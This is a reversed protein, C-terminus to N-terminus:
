RTPARLQAEAVPDRPAGGRSAPLAYSPPDSDPLLANPPLPQTPKRPKRASVNPAGAAGGSKLSVAPANAALNSSLAAPVTTVVLADGDGFKVVTATPVEAQALPLVPMAALAVQEPSGAAGASVTRTGPRTEVQQPPTNGILMADRPVAISAMQPLPTAELATTAQARTDERLAYATIAAAAVGGMMMLAVARLVSTSHSSTIARLERQEIAAEEREVRELRLRPVSPREDSPTASREPYNSVAMPALSGPRELPTPPRESSVLSRAFPSPTIQSISRLHQKSSPRHVETLEEEQEEDLQEEDLLAAIFAPRIERTPTKLTLPQVARQQQQVKWAPWTPTQTPTPNWAASRVEVADGLDLEIEVDQDVLLEVDYVDTLDRSEVIDADDLAVVRDPRRFPLM